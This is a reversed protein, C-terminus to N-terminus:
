PWVVVTQWEGNGEGESGDDESDAHARDTEGRFGPVLCEGDSSRVPVVRFRVRGWPERARHRVDTPAM